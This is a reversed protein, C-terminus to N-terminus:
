QRKCVHTGNEAFVFLAVVITALVILGWCVSSRGAIINRNGGSKHYMLANCVTFVTPRIWTLRFYFVLRFCYISLSGPTPIAENVAAYDFSLRTLNFHTDSQSTLLWVSVNHNGYPLSQIDFLAINTGTRNTDLSVLLRSQMEM